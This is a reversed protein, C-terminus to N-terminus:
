CWIIVRYEKYAVTDTQMPSRKNEKGSEKLHIFDTALPSQKCYSEDVGDERQLVRRTYHAHKIIHAGGHMGFSLTCITSQQLFQLGSHSRMFMEVAPVGAKDYM